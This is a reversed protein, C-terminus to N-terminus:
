DEVPVGQITVAEVKLEKVWFLEVQLRNNDPLNFEGFRPNEFEIVQSGYTNKGVGIGSCYFKQGDITVSIEEGRITVGFFDEGNDSDMHIPYNSDNVIDIAKQM